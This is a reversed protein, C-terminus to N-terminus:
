FYGTNNIIYPQIIQYFAFYGMIALISRGLITNMFIAYSEFSIIDSFKIISTGSHIYTILSPIGFIIIIPLLDITMQKFMDHKMASINIYDTDHSYEGPQASRGRINKKDNSQYVFTNVTIYIIILSLISIALFKNKNYESLINDRLAYLLNM